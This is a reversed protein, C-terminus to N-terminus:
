SEGISDVGRRFAYFMGQSMLNELSTNPNEILEALNDILEAKNTSSQIAEWLDNADQSELGRSMMIEVMEDVDRQEKTLQLDVQKTSRKFFGEPTPASGAEFDGDIFDYKDLLYDETFTLIGSNVLIADRQAREMEIGDKFKLGVQIDETINNYFKIYEVLKRLTQEVLRKDSKVKDQRVGDHVKAAALSGGEVETTLNQGLVAQHIQMRLCDEFNKFQMGGSGGSAQIVEIKTDDTVALSSGEMAEELNQLLQNVQEESRCETIGLLFPQGFRELWKGWSRYGYERAMCLYHLTQYLSVGYPNEACGESIALLYKGYPEEKIGKKSFGGLQDYTVSIGDPLPDFRTFDRAVIDKIINRGGDQKWVLEFVSFGLFVSWVSGRVLVDKFPHLQDYIFDRTQESDTKIVLDLDCLGDLRTNTVHHITPDMYCKKLKERGNKHQNLQSYDRTSLAFKFTDEAAKDPNVRILLKKREEGVPRKVPKNILRDFIGM